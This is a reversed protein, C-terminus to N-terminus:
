FAIHIYSEYIPFIFHYYICYSICHYTIRFVVKLGLSPGYATYFSAIPDEIIPFLGARCGADGALHM